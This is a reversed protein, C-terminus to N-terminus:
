THATFEDDRDIVAGTLTGHFWLGTPDDQGVYGGRGLSLATQVGRLASLAYSLAKGRKDALDEYDEAHGHLADVSRSLVKDSIATIAEVGHVRVVTDEPAVERTREPVQRPREWPEPLFGGKSLWEDLAEVVEALREHEDPELGSPELAQSALNRIETLAANPDM